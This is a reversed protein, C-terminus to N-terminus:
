CRRRTPRGPRCSSGAGHVTVPGSPGIGVAHAGAAGVRRHGAARRAGRDGVPGVRDGARPRDRVGRCGVQRRPPVPLRRVDRLARVLWRAAPGGRDGDVVAAGRGGCGAVLAAVYPEHPLAAYPYPTSRWPETPDEGTTGHVAYLREAEGYYARPRRLRFPWAPSVGELHAVEEFDSERFRPLSARLGQHQRRRRLAGGPSRGVAGDEWTEAPKYRRDLFVGRSVLERAGQPLREGRELVLVDVGRRALAWATTGGGMGSGSSSSTPRWTSWPTM